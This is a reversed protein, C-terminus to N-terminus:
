GIAETEQAPVFTITRTRPGVLRVIKNTYRVAYSRYLLPFIMKIANKNEIVYRRSKPYSFIFDL